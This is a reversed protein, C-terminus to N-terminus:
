APEDVLADVLGWGLAQRVNLRKGSLIMLATRQKGIRRTLSVCGGAGPMIGMALEPLQFWANSAATIRRAFAALELGSGVCAGAIHAELKDACRIAQRAPLTRSRIAHATAPDFTTGFEGLEAGLSFAKGKGRLLVREIESDLAALELAEHLADRMVRDIANGAEPRDLTITLLPGERDLAVRGQGTADDRTGGRQAFWDRHESSAQLTAYAFSEATLGAALSLGPLIRLLQIIVAAAQPHALVQSAISAADVPAEVIADLDQALPHTPDGIGVVPCPPLELECRELPTAALDLFVLPGDRVTEEPSLRRADVVLHAIDMRVKHGAM